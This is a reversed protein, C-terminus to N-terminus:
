HQLAVPQWRGEINKLEHTANGPVSEGPLGSIVVVGQKRFQAVAHAVDADDSYTSFVCELTNTTCTSLRSLIKLESSFGTAARSRGFVEGIDNYRGGNALAQGYGQAYVAFVLGTHYHYGRLEALDVFCNVTPHSAEIAAVVKGLEEIAQTVVVPVDDFLGDIHQMVEIDGYSQALAVFRRQWVDGLGASAAATEIDAQAKRQVAAFVDDHAQGLLGAQEAMAEFIGINGLDLTLNQIGLKDFMALMLRIIEIDAEVSNDGYLEAGLQIPSRTAHLNRPRTHLVSGAYCLRSIGEPALSHADIRAVQPTFDPRVAMLRGSTEDVVKFSDVDMDHGLGLLLSDTFEVLPPMVLGFGHSAFLDLVQRRLQEVVTAEEPLLEEVGDPLLWRDSQAM